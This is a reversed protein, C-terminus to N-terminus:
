RRRRTPLPMTKTGVDPPMYQPPVGYLGITYRGQDDPLLTVTVPEPSEVLNDPLTPMAITAVTTGPYTWSLTVSGSALAHDGGSEPTVLYSVSISPQYM